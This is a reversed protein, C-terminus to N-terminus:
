NKKAQDAGAKIVDIIEVVSDYSYVVVLDDNVELNEPIKYRQVFLSIESGTKETGALGSQKLIRAEKVQIELSDSGHGVDSRSILTGKLASMDHFTTNVGSLASAAIGSHIIVFLFYVVVFVLLGELKLNKILVLGPVKKKDGKIIPFIQELRSFSPIFKKELLCAAAIIFVVPLLYVLGSGPNMSRVVLLLVLGLIYLMYYFFVLHLSLLIYDPPPNSTGPKLHGTRSFDAAYWGEGKELARAVMYDFRIARVLIVVFLILSAFISIGHFWNLDFDNGSGIFATYIQSWNYNGEM